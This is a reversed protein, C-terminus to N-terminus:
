WGEPLERGIRPKDKQRQKIRWALSGIPAKPKQPMPKSKRESLGRWALADAIVRDGHNAKAGSPDIKDDERSHSVGGQTNFIYELCEELAEKSRNICLGKEIAARYDGMLVLKTEKTAAWGPIQSIKRSLTEEQKRLYVNGYGLEMVRSGFQRGPGNSEWVLYANGLWRAIAVAQKALEEPRIYPNVYELVKENTTADYGCLASNSAGTGASVDVGLVFKHDKLINGDKDLLCWLHIHGNQEERFKIAEATVSDYELNGVVVPPKAYKRIAEQIAATLFYQYGSGLFDIDLEQAIERSSAAREHEGDYWPSRLKDDLIPNYDEPYNRKDIVRLKGTRTTEYLGRNKKPHESWHFRLKKINTQHVDYYANGTGLPTSNFIRSNTADRTSALVRHGQEVAAFEDLLIATRRDGRAVQGTTAEGDIVSGNFPNSIHLKRRHDNRNYGPPMLWLPLNNHLFDIKWFLSKPNDANDVYNETRSVMLFSQMKRFHWAWELALICLWSAGQDRSKKILLDYNGIAGIIELLGQRQFPYLIFPLKAFPQCRPDYTYVFGCVYFLPDIACAEWLIDAFSPDDIVRQHVVARWKLNAIIETPVYHIFPTKM